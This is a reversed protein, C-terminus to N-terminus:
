VTDGISLLTLLEQDSRFEQSIGRAVVCFSTQLGRSSVEQHVFNGLFDQLHLSSGFISKANVCPYGPSIAWCHLARAAGESSGPEMGLMWVAMQFELGLFGLVRQRWVEGGCTQDNMRCLVYMYAFIHIGRKFISDYLQWSFLSDMLSLGFWLLIIFGAKGHLIRDFGLTKVCCQHSSPVTFLM